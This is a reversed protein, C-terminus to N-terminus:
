IIEDLGMKEDRFLRCDMEVVDEAVLPEFEMQDIIDKQIDIGPAVEIIKLGERTLRFVCRETIFLVNQETDCAYEGSFSIQEISKKFKKAKGEEKIVLKGDVVEEKLGGATLTGCFMVNKTAQSLDIFGGCGPIRSGFKSVNINGKPDVEAFGLFTTGLHGGEYIDFQFPEENICWANATAGFNNGGMPVGGIAGTEVTMVVQDSLGEEACISAVSEPIGLGLNILSNRKLEMAARRGIIKRQNLPLAKMAEVSIRYKGTFVPSYYEGPTQRHNNILDETLIVGDVFNGSIIVQSADLSGAEVIRKVQVYVKGGNNKAALAAYRAFSLAMEDEFTINGDTDATTGRIIAVNIKPIQYYLYEEGEFEVLKVLDDTTIDNMKGGAIRPDANTKLGIKTLEGKKGCSISRLLHLVVGQPWNYSEVKNDVIMRMLKKNSGYHGVIIRKMMGEHAFRNFGDGAVGSPNGIGAGAMLTLNKPEGTELFRKELAMYLEEPAAAAMFGCTVIFDDNKIEKAFEEAKYIKM